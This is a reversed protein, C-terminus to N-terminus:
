SGFLPFIQFSSLCYTEKKIQEIEEETLRIEDVFFSNGM